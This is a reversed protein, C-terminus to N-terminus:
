IPTDGLAMARALLVAEAALRGTEAGGNMYGYFAESLHEGAVVFGRHFVDPAEDLSHLAPPWAIWPGRSTLGPAFTSYAGLSFPNKRWATIVADGTMAEVLEPLAPALRAAFASASVSGDLANTQDGGLFLTLAAVTEDRQARSGDWALAEDSWLESRFGTATHWARHDVGVIIKENRGLQYEAIAAILRDPMPAQFHLELTRLVPFPITCIVFRATVPPADRFALRFGGGPLEEIRELFAHRVITDAPLADAIAQPIRGNGGVVSYIEDSESLVDVTGRRVRPKAYMLQIASSDDPESGYDSRIAAECVARAVPDIPGHDQDFADLWETVSQGDITGDDRGRDLRRADRRIKRALPALGNAVQAEPVRRGAFQFAADPIPGPEHDVSRDFLPLGFRAALALVDAHDSNIFAGGRETVIGPGAEGTTSFIRGGIRGSGEFIRARVGADHLTLAANLGAIGAGVVVVEHDFGQAWASTWPALATAAVASGLVGRRSWIAPSRTM